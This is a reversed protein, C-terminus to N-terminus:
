LSRGDLCGHYRSNHGISNAEDAFLMVKRSSVWRKYGPSEKNNVCVEEEIAKQIMNTLVVGLTIGIVVLVVGIIVAIIGAVKKSCM